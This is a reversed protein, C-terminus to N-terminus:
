CREHSPRWAAIVVSLLGIIDCSVECCTLWKLVDSKLGGIDALPFKSELIAQAPIHVHGFLLHGLEHGLISMVEEPALENM